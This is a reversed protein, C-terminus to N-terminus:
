LSTIVTRYAHIGPDSVQDVAMQFYDIGMHVTDIVASSLCLGSALVLPKHNVFAM